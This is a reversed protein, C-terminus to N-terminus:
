HDIFQELPINNKTIEMSMLEFNSFHGSVFIVPKKKSKIDNLVNEGELTIHTSNKRLHKLFMYEIFYNWLKEM